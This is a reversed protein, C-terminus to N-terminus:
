DQALKGQWKLDVFREWLKPNESPEFEYRDFFAVTLEEEERQFWADYADLNAHHRDLDREVPDM